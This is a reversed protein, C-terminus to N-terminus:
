AAREGPLEAGIARDCGEARARALNQAALGFAVDIDAGGPHAALGISLTVPIGRVAIGSRIRGRLQEAIRAAVHRPAGPLFVLFAGPAIRALLDDQRLADALIQAAARQVEDCAGTGGHAALEAFADVEIQVLWGAPAYRLLREAGRENLAGTLPDTDQERRSQDFTRQARAMMRNIRIMLVGVEDRYSEPLSQVQGTRGWGDLVDSVLLVPEILARIGLIALVLGAASTAFLVGVLTPDVPGAGPSTGYLAMGALPLAFGAVVVAFLKASFSAPFMRCLFRYFPM